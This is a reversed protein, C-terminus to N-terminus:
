TKPDNGSEEEILRDLYWQCKKLCEVGNKHKWRWLYKLANGACFGEFGNLGVTAAKIADICEVGGQNYHSPHDIASPTATAETPKDSEKKTELYKELTRIANKIEEVSHEEICYCARDPNGDLPCRENYCDIKDCLADFRDVLRKKEEEEVPVFERNWCANCEQQTPCSLACNEWIKRENLYEYDGPCLM